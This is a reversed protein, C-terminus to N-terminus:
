MAFDHPDFEKHCNTYRWRYTEIALLNFILKLMFTLSLAQYSMTGDIVSTSKRYCNGGMQVDDPTKHMGYKSKQLVTLV